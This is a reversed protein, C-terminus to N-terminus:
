KLIWEPIHIIYHLKPIMSSDPYLAKFSSNHEEIISHLYAVEDPSVVPAFTYDIITLLLLFNHWHPDDEPVLNGIMFPLLRALCWMQDATYIIMIIKIHM